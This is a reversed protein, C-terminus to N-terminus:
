RCPARVLETVSTGTATTTLTSPASELAYDPIEPLGVVAEPLRRCAINTLVFVAGGVRSLARGMRMTAIRRPSVSCGGGVDLFGLRGTEDRADLM